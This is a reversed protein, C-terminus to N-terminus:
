PNPSAAFLIEERVVRLRSDVDVRVFTNARSLDGSPFQVDHIEIRHGDELQTINALPFRAYQLYMQTADSREGVRLAVSDEPKYRTSTREADFEAGPGVPVRAEEVTDETVAVGRWDFLSTSSPFAGASLPERGHYDRSLLIDVATGHLVARAGIYAVMASLVVIAARRGRVRKKRDGIEESVLRFLQPLLLGGILLILIWPDLNALLNWAYKHIYFPWLLQVGTGSALDLVVNATAGIGAVVLAPAFRLPSAVAGDRARRRDAAWFAAATVCAVAGAGVISHLAARDWRLFAGAGGFFSLYDLEPAVGAVVLM